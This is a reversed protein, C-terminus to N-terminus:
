RGVPEPAPPLRWPHAAEWRSAFALLAREASKPATLQIGFPIDGAAMGAPLSIAPHGTLNQPETNYVWAPLGDRGGALSGSPTWAVANLTPTALLEGNALLRDLRRSYAPLRMLARDHDDPDIESAGNMQHRFLPDMLDGYKRITEVGIARFQDVGVIRFWDDPDYEPGLVDVPQVERVVIEMRVLREVATRWAEGVGPEVPGPWMRQAVVVRTTPQSTAEGPDPATEGTLAALQYAVDAVSVGMLGHGNLAPSPLSPDIELLGSTLKLGVLGCLSAPIRASGGVDTATALPAMGVALAVASGGSSGGPSFAPNWPNLTSGFARNSTFGDFAFEPLNTKGILIAGLRRLRAASTGDSREPPADACLLSGFSTRMGEVAENDKVLVPLGVLSGASAGRALAGDLRRAEAQAEEARVAVVANLRSMAEIRELCHSVLETASITRGRIQNVLSGIGDSAKM